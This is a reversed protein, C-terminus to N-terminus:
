LTEGDEIPNPDARRASKRKAGAEPGTAPTPIGLDSHPIAATMPDVPAGSPISPARNPDVLPLRRHSWVSSLGWLSVIGGVFAIVPERGFLDAIPGVVIIPALSAISVLMNLVGFVRGRVDEPLEEQLQTQASIAVIVYCAGVSFAIGMVLSLLSVVRSAEALGTSAARAELFHSIPGSCALLALLVGTAILGTEITQRRPLYKGYANLFMIGMAIGLGLPLVILAFDKEGLALTSKAFGPGLVGLIGVLAGAIALYSLSWGVNRHERIYTIGEVFQSLMTGVAREADAVTQGATAESGARPTPPLTYCFVAAVFYLAAVILILLEANAIAVVFPGFLAFGLAFAVNATLTFLGNAALLQKKPVLFPIMSAEAPGFFTTVTSVFVMLLYLFLLNNGFLFIALFAIGRLINTVILLHRKDVRDVFVGAIASFIIAPLLFSLLLASVASSSAYAATIIITLGYIVMNGGVQTSLQALWLLLFPRNQLVASAGANELPDVVAPAVAPVERSRKPPM